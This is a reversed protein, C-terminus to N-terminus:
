NRCLDAVQQVEFSFDLEFKHAFVNRIKRVIEIERFEQESILGLSYALKSRTGLNGIPGDITNVISDTQKCPILFDNIVEKLKQDLMSAGLVAAGRDTETQFEAMFDNFKAYYPNEPTNNQM